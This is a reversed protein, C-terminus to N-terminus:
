GAKCLLIASNCFILRTHHVIRLYRCNIERAGVVRPCAILRKLAGLHRKFAVRKERMDKTNLLM